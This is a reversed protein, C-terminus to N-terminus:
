GSAPRAREIAQRELEHETEVLRQAGEFARVAALMTTMEVVPQVNSGELAGQVVGASVV